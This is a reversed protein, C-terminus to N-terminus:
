GHNVISSCWLHVDSKCLACFSAFLASVHVNDSRKLKELCLLMQAFIALEELSRPRKAKSM